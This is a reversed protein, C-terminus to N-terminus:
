NQAQNASALKGRDGHSPFSRLAQQVSVAYV